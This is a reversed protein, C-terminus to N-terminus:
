DRMRTGPHMPHVVIKKEDQHNNVIKDKFAFGGKNRKCFGSQVNLFAFLEFRHVDDDDNDNNDDNDECAILSTTQLSSRNFFPGNPRHFLRKPPNSDGLFFGLNLIWKSISRSVLCSLFVLIAVFIGCADTGLTSLTTTVISVVPEFPVVVLVCCTRM